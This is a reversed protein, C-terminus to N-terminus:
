VLNSLQFLDSDISPVENENSSYVDLQSAALIDSINVLEDMMSNVTQRQLELIIDDVDYSEPLADEVANFTKKTVAEYDNMSSLEDAKVKMESDIATPVDMADAEPNALSSELFSRKFPPIQSPLNLGNFNIEVPKVNDVAPAPSPYAPTASSTVTPLVIPMAPAVPANYSTPKEVFGSTMPTYDKPISGMKNETKTKKSEFDVADARSRM